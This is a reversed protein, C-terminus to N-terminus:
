PRVEAPVDIVSLVRALTEDVSIHQMCLNNKCSSQRDNYANVCPSCALGAWLAHTRPSNPAFLEPTEPGFLVVVHIPTLAAFHAPGSDNTVLVRSLGYLVLLQRLTTKGALNICRRDHVQRVLQSAADAEDPAGTFAVVADPRAALLRNALDVYRESPWRRLPLMDSCNANFLVLPAADNVGDQRLMERVAEAEGPEVTFAPTQDAVHPVAFDLAPLHEHPTDLARVMALFARSTHMHANFNLPHTMLNGRYAAEGHFAHYGVRWVAGSLFAMAASSRAFFEMDITTDIKLSRMRKISSLAGVVTGMLSRDNITVVNEHPVLGMADLIFRNKEFVLFFVNERGVRRIADRIAAAALVTSGQEALKVFLIRGPAVPAPTRGSTLKRWLTLVFCAPVGLWRDAKRMSAVDM